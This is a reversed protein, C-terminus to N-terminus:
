PIEYAICYNMIYKGDIIADDECDMRAHCRVSSGKVISTRRGFKRRSMEDNVPIAVWTCDERMEIRNESHLALANRLQMLSQATEECKYGDFNCAQSVADPDYLQMRTKKFLKSTHGFKRYDGLKKADFTM